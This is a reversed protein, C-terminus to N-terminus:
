EWEGNEISGDYLEELFEKRMDPNEKLEKIIKDLARDFEEGELNFIDM